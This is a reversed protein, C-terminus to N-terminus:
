SWHSPRLYIYHYSENSDNNDNSANSNNSYNSDMSDNGDNGVISDNSDNSDSIDNSDNSGNSDNCDNSDHSDNSTNTDNSDISNNSDIVDNRNKSINRYSKDAPQGDLIVEQQRDQSVRCVPAPCRPAYQWKEGSNPSCNGSRKDVVQYLFNTLQFM